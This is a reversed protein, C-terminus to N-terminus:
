LSSTNQHQLSEVALIGEYGLAFKGVDGDSTTWIYIDNISVLGNTEQFPAGSLVCGLLTGGGSIPYDYSWLVDSLDSGVSILFSQRDPNAPILLFPQNKAVFKVCYPTQRTQAPSNRDFLSKEVEQFPVMNGQMSERLAAKAGMDPQYRPNASVLSNSQLLGSASNSGNSGLRGFGPRRVFPPM